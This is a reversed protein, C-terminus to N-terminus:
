TGDEKVSVRKKLIDQKIFYRLARSSIIKQMIKQMMILIIIVHWSYFDLM